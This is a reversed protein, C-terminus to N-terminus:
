LSFHHVIIFILGSTIACYLPTNTNACCTSLTILPMAYSNTPIYNEPLYYTKNVILTDDIYALGNKIKLTYVNYCVRQNEITQLMNAEEIMGASKHSKIIRNLYIEEM